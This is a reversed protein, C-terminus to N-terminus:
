STPPWSADGPTVYLVAHAETPDPVTWRELMRDIVRAPVIADRQRNRGRQDAATAECYVIRTRARYSRFFGLLQARLDRSLNTANWAFSTGARLMERARERALAIVEGRSDGPEVDLEDRVADLSIVPLEPANARLWSDKGAAPLGCMLTVECTTDDHAPVDPSRPAESECWVRRAHPTAFARATALVGHERCHEAWLGCHDVIRVQDAPDACRRGRGDAEAVATLWDHRLILSLRLALREAERPERTIGFFPVQHYRVLACVHERVGFPVGARWLAVRALGEGRASHGRSTIREGGEQPVVRTTSPKGVDHLLVAAALIGRAVPDAAAYAPQAVLAEVAMRTHTWVDGEAHFAHDQPTAALEAAPAIPALWAEVAAWDIAAGPTLDPLTM